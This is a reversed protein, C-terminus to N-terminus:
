KLTNNRKEPTYHAMYEDIMQLGKASAIGRFFTCVIQLMADREDMEEPLIRATHERLVLASSTYYLVSIALEVNITSIFLGDSIGRELMERLSRRHIEANERVLKEYVAPYFKQLNYRMRANREARDMVDGLVMFLAELVNSGGSSLEIWRQRNKEAFCEMTLYLLGEKDGFLEYLTRKSVGLQQAIDDMRVSKIGQAVFM